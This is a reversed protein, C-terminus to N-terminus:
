EAAIGLTYLIQAGTHVYILGATIHIFVTHLSQQGQILNRLM